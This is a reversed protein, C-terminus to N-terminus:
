HVEKFYAIVAIVVAVLCACTLFNWPTFLKERKEKPLNKIKGILYIAVMEAIPIAILISSPTKGNKDAEAALCFIATLVLPAATITALLADIEDVPFVCVAAIIGVLIGVPIWSWGLALLGLNVGLFLVILLIWQHWALPEATEGSGRNSKSIAMSIVVACVLATIAVIVYAIM